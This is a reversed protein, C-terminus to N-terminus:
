PALRQGRHLEDAGAQPGGDGAPEVSSWGGGLARVLAVSALLRQTQINLADRQAQLATTQSIVVTLYDVAGQRYLSESMSLSQSAAEVAADQATAALGFHQLLALQDEVQQFASLVTSRYQAASADFQALAQRKVGERLGGDFLTLLLTPGLAWVTSPASVLSALRDSQFGGQAGIMLSPFWAARAVGVQANAAEMRREAAAVDPRRQLIESPLVMPVSPLRISLPAAPASFTSASEGLLAAIAHETLARQARTQEIQSRAAELQAQAQTVDLGPAIGRDHRLKTLALAREYAAVADGLLTIEQDLSRLGLYDDVLEASLSLQVSALDAAAADANATAVKAGNRVRGWLDVEYSASAGLSLTNFIPHPYPNALDKSARSRGAGAGLSIQPFLGASAQQRLARAQEFNAVAIALSPNGALLRDELADIEASGYIKWWGNRTLRDGPAAAAWDGLEKWASGEKVAPVRLAPELSCGGIVLALLAPWLCRLTANMPDPVRARPKAM